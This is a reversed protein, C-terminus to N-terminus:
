EAEFVDKINNSVHMDAGMMLLEGVVRFSESPYQFAPFYLEPKPDEDFYEKEVLVQSPVGEPKDLSGCFELLIFSKYLM